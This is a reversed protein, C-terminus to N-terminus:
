FCSRSISLSRSSVVTDIWNLDIRAITWQPSVRRERGAQDVGDQGDPDTVMSRVGNWERGPGCKNDRPGKINSVVRIRVIRRPNIQLKFTETTDADEQMVMGSPRYIKLPRGEHIFLMGSM